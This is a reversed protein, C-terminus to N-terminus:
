PFITFSTTIDREGRQLWDQRTTECRLELILHLKSNQPQESSILSASGCSPLNRCWEADNLCIVESSALQLRPIKLAATSLRM